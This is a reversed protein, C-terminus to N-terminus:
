QNLLHWILECQKEREVFIFNTHPYLTLYNRLQKALSQGHAIQGNPLVKRWNELDSIKTVNDSRDVAIVYILSCLTFNVFRAAMEYSARCSSTVFNHYLELISKKRDVVISHGPVLYDGAAFHIPMAAVGNEACWSMMPSQKEQLDCLLVPLSSHYAIHNAHIVDKSGSAWNDTGVAIESPSIKYTSAPFTRYVAPYKKGDRNNWRVEACIVCGVADRIDVVSAYKPNSQIAKLLCTYPWPKESKSVRQTFVWKGTRLYLTHAWGALSGVAFDYHVIIYDNEDTLYLIKLLETKQNEVTSNISLNTM